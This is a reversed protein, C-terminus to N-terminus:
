SKVCYTSEFYNIAKDINVIGNENLFLTVKIKAVGRINIDEIQVLGYWSEFFNSGFNEKEMIIYIRGYVRSRNNGFLIVDANKFVDINVFELPEFPNSYFFRFDINDDLGDRMGDYILLNKRNCLINELERKLSHDNVAKESNM